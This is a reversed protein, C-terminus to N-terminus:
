GKFGQPDHDSLQEWKSKLTTKIENWNEELVTENVM